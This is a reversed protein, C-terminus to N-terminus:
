IYTIMWAELVEFFSTAWIFNNKCIDMKNQIKAYERVSFKTIGNKFESPTQLFIEPKLQYWKEIAEFPTKVNLEKRLSGHRRHLNYFIM